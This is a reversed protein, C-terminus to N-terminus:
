LPQNNSYHSAEKLQNIYKLDFSALPRVHDLEFTNWNMDDTMLFEIYEKFESYSIGLLAETTENKKSLERLLAQRLRNRLKESLRYNINNHYKERDRNRIHERNNKEWEIQYIKLQDSNNDCWKKRCSKCSSYFGDKKTKDFSFESFIKEVECKTCRKSM